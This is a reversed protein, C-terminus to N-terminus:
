GRTLLARTLFWANRPSEGVRRVAYPWWDRGFPLYVRMSEGQAALKEQLLPRVGYLMEFEYDKRDWPVARAQDRIDAIITHDHTGFVPHTGADRSEASLLIGALYRYSADIQRRSPFTTEPSGVFAGKVLRVTAGAASLARIDDKSRRLYAQVTVAVPYGEEKLRWYLDLTTDVYSEDEMDLMLTRTGPINRALMADGIRRLNAEGLDGNVAYGVQSPDVSLHLDVDVGDIRSIAALIGSVNTEVRATDTVYEGLFFISTTIRKSRLRSAAAVADAVSPGAVFRRALASGPAWGQFFRTITVNRALAIMSGQWIKM